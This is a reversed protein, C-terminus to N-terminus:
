PNCGSVKSCTQQLFFLCWTMNTIIMVSKNNQHSEAHFNWMIQHRKEEVFMCCFKQNTTVRLFTSCVVWISCISIAESSGLLTSSHSFFILLFFPLVGLLWFCHLFLLYNLGSRSLLVYVKLSSVCVGLFFFSSAIVDSLGSSWRWNEKM